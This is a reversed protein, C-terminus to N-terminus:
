SSVHMAMSAHNLYALAVHHTCSRCQGKNLQEFRLTLCSGPNRMRCRGTGAPVHSSSSDEAACSLAISPACRPFTGGVEAHLVFGHGKQKRPICCSTEFSCTRDHHRDRQSLKTSFMCTGSASIQGKKICILAMLNMTVCMCRSSAEAAELAADVATCGLTATVYTAHKKTLPACLM